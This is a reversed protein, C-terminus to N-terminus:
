LFLNDRFFIISDGFYALLLFDVVKSLYALLWFDVVKSWDQHFKTLIVIVHLLYYQKFRLCIQCVNHM